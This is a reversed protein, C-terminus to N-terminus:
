SFLPPKLAPDLFPSKYEHYYCWDVKDQTLAFSKLTISKSNSLSLPSCFSLCCGSEDSNESQHSCCDNESNLDSVHSTKAQLSPEPIDFELAETCASAMFSFLFLFCVIFRTMVWCIVVAVPNSDIM